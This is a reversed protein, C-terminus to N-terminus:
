SPQTYKVIAYVSGITLQYAGSKLPNEQGKVNYLGCEQFEKKGIKLQNEKGSGSVADAGLKELTTSIKKGDPQLSKIEVKTSKKDIEGTAKVKAFPIDGNFDFASTQGTPTKSGEYSLSYDDTGLVVSKWVPSFGTSEYDTKTKEEVNYTATIQPVTSVKAWNKMNTTTKGTFTFAVTDYVPNKGPIYKIGEENTGETAPDDKIYTAVYPGANFMFNVVDGTKAAAEEGKGNQTLRIGDKTAKSLTVNTGEMLDNTRYDGDTAEKDAPNSKVKQVTGSATTIMDITFAAYAAESGSNELEEIKEVTEPKAVAASSADKGESIALTVDVDVPVTSLNEIAYTGSLIQSKGKLGDASEVSVELPNIAIQFASPVVVDIVDEPALVRADGLTKIEDGEASAIHGASLALSLALTTGIVRRFIKNRM